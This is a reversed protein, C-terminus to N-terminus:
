ESTEEREAAQTPGIPTEHNASFVARVTAQPVGAGIAMGALLAERATPSAWGFVPHEVRWWRRLRAAAAPACDGTLYGLDRDANPTFRRYADRFIRAAQEDPLDEIAAALEGRGVLARGQWRFPGIAPESM